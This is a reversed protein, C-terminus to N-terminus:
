AQRTKVILPIDINKGELQTDYDADGTGTWVLSVVANQIEGASVKKVSPSSDIIAFQSRYNSDIIFTYEIDVESDSADVLIPVDFVAGPTIVGEKVHRSANASQYDANLRFSNRYTINVGNIKVSYNNLTVGEVGKELQYVAHSDMYNCSFSITILLVIGIVFFIDRIKFKM